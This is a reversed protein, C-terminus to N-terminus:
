AITDNFPEAVVQHDDEFVIYGPRDTKVVTVAYGCLELLTSLAYARQICERAEPKFWSIGKTKRRYFGKSTTRNFREPQKLNTEYWDLLERIGRVVTADAEPDRCVQYAAAFFGDRRGTAENLRALVFRLFM